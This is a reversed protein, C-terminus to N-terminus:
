ALCTSEDALCTGRRAERRTRYLTPIRKAPVSWCYISGSRQLITGGARSLQEDVWDEMAFHLKRRGVGVQSERKERTSADKDGMGTEREVLLIV